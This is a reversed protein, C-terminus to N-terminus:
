VVVDMDFDGFYVTMTNNPKPDHNTIAFQRVFFDGKGYPKDFTRGIVSYHWPMYAGQEGPYHVDNPVNTKKTRQAFLELVFSTYQNWHPMQSFAIIEAGHYSRNTFVPFDGIPPFVVTLIKQYEVSLGGGKTLFGEFKDTWIKDKGNGTLHIKFDPPITIHQYGDVELKLQPIRVKFNQPITVTPYGSTIKLDLVKRMEPSGYNALIAIIGANSKKM